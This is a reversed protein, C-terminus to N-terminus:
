PVHGGKGAFPHVTSQRCERLASGTPSDMSAITEVPGSGLIRGGATGGEPGMDLIWDCSRILEMHHEIVIVTNGRDVLGQLVDILKAVDSLHLGTTPEDLVYLTRGSSARALENALKLRQAEGGSLTTSRQGLTLYGLGVEQLRQLVSRLSEFSEFFQVAEDVTMDLM